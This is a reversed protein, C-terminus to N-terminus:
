QTKKRNNNGIGKSVTQRLAKSLKQSFSSEGESNPREVRILQKWEGEEDLETLTTMSDESVGILIAKEYVQLLAVSKKPAIYTTSLVRIQDSTPNGFSKKNMFFRLIWVFGYILALIIFLAGLGKVLAKVFSIENGEQEKNWSIETASQGVTSSDATQGFSLEQFSLLLIIIAYLISKMNIVLNKYGNVRRM